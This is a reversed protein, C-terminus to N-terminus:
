RGYVLLLVGACNQHCQDAMHLSVSRGRSTRWAKAPCSERSCVSLTILVGEGIDADQSSSTSTAVSGTYRPARACTFRACVHLASCGMSSDPFSATCM